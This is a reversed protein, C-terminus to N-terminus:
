KNNLDGVSCFSELNDDGISTSNNFPKVIMVKILEDSILISAASNHGGCYHSSSFVTLVKAGKQIEVGLDKRQHARILYQTGTKRFFEELAKRSFICTNGGRENTGFLANENDLEEEEEPEAPDAWMLDFSFPLQNTQDM